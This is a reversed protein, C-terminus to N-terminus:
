ALPAPATSKGGTYSRTNAPHFQEVNWHGQFDNGLRGIIVILGVVGLDVIPFRLVLYPPTPSSPSGLHSFHSSPWDISFFSRSKHLDPVRVEQDDIPKGHLVQIPKCPSDASRIPVAACERYLLIESIQLISIVFIKSNLNSM